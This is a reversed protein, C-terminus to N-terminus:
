TSYLEDIIEKFWIPKELTIYLMFLVAFPIPIIADFLATVALILIIKTYTKM